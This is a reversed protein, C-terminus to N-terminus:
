LKKIFPKNASWKGRLRSGSGSQTVGEMLKVTVYASEASLVDKTEPTFQYLVTGNKDEIREIMVPKTYVGQNAFASYAGVMEYVSIDPTGLAISPVEPIDSTIGLTKALDAVPQPGVKDMLRATITNVSNALADKLTKDGGYDGGDNKTVM